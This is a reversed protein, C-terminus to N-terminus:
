ICVIKSETKESENLYDELKKTLEEIGTGKYYTAIVFNTLPVAM